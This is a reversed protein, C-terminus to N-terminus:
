DAMHRTWEARRDDVHAVRLIGLSKGLQFDWFTRMRVLHPDRVADHHDIMFDHALRRGPPATSEADMVDAIRRLRALDGAPFRIAGAHVTIIEVAAIQIARRCELAIAAIDDADEIEFLRRSRLLHAAPPHRPLPDGAALRRGPFARVVAAVM